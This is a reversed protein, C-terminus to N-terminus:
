DVRLVEGKLYPEAISWKMSKVPATNALAEVHVKLNALWRDIDDRGQRVELFANKKLSELMVNRVVQYSYYAGLSVALITGGILLRMVLNHPLKFINKILQM